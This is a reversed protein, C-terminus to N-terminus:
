NSSQSPGKGSSPGVGIWNSKADVSSAIELQIEKSIFSDDALPFLWLSVEPHVIDCRLYRLTNGLSLRGRTRLKWCNDFELSRSRTRSQSCSRTTSHSRHIKASHQENQRSNSSFLYDILNSIAAFSLKWALVFCTVFNNNRQKYWLFPRYSLLIRANFRRAGNLRCPRYFKAVWALQLDGLLCSTERRLQYSGSLFAVISLLVHLDCRLPNYWFFFFFFLYAVLLWSSSSSIQRIFLPPRDVAITRSIRFMIQRYSGRQYRRFIANATSRAYKLCCASWRACLYIRSIGFVGAFQALNLLSRFSPSALLSTSLHHFYLSVYSFVHCLPVLPPFSSSIASLFLLDLTSYFSPRRLHGGLWKAM